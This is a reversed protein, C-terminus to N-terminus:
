PNCEVGKETPITIKGYKFKKGNRKNIAYSGIIKTDARLYKMEASSFTSTIQM